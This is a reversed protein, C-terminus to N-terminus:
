ELVEEEVDNKNAQRLYDGQKSFCLEVPNPKTTKLMYGYNKRSIRRVGSEAHNKKVYNVMLKPFQELCSEPLEDGKPAEADEFRGLRDFCVKIGSAFDIEYLGEDLTAMVVSDAPFMKGYMVSANSPVRKTENTMVAGTRSFIYVEKDKLTVEYRNRRNRVLKRLEADPSVSKIHTQAKKPLLKFMDSQANKKKLNVKRWDGKSNFEIEVGNQLEVTLDFDNKDEYVTDVAEGPFYLELFSQANDPLMTLFKNEQRNEHHSATNDCSVLTVGVAFLPVAILKIVKNLM